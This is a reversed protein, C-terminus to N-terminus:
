VQPLLSFLTSAAPSPSPDCPAFHAPPASVYLQGALGAAPAPCAARAAQGRPEREGWFAVWRPDTWLMAKLQAYTVGGAIAGEQEQLLERYAAEAAEAQALKAAARAAAREKAAQAEALRQAARAAARAAAEAAEQEKRQAAERAARLQGTFGEFAAQREAESALASYRPDASHAAQFDAYRSDAAVQAAM